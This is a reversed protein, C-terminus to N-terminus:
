SGYLVSSNEDSAACFNVLDLQARTVAGAEGQGKSAGGVYMYDREPELVAGGGM